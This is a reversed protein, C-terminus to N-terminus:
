YTESQTLPDQVMWKGRPALLGLRIAIGRHEHIMTHCRDCVAMLYREDLTLKRTRGRVHHVSTSKAAVVGYKHCAECIPRDTLIRKKLVQWKSNIAAQVKSVKRIPKRRTIM